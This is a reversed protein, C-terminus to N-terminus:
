LQAGALKGLNKAGGEGADVKAKYYSVCQDHEQALRLADGDDEILKFSTVCHRYNQFVAAEVNDLPRKARVLQVIAGYRLTITRVASELDLKTVRYVNLANFLM